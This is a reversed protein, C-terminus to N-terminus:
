IAEAWVFISGQESSEFGGYCPEPLDLRFTLAMINGPYLVNARYGKLGVVTGGAQLIEAEDFMAEEFGANLQKHINVYGETDHDRDISSDYDDNDVDNDMRTSFAGNEAYYRFAGLSLYNVLEGTEAGEGDLRMCRGMDTDTAPWDKGTIFMDLAVGGEAINELVVQSYSSTGPRIDSFDLSGDVDLEIVPNIWLPTMEDYVGVENGDDAQVTLWYLGAMHESDLATISCRFGEMTTDDFKDIVEEDIRANCSDFHIKSHYDCGQTGRLCGGDVVDWPVCNLTYDDYGPEDGLILDVVVDQIKNKDWVVVDVSYKEGEFLYNGSREYLWDDEHTLRWPQVNDDTMFRNDCQWVVPEFDEVIIEGGFGEGIGAAMVIPMASLTLLAIISLSLLKKM